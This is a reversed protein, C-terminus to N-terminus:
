KVQVWEGVAEDEAIQRGDETIYIEYGTNEDIFTAQDMNVMVEEDMGYISVTELRKM